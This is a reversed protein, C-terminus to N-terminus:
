IDLFESWGFAGCLVRTRGSNSKPLKKVRSPKFVVFLNKAPCTLGISLNLGLPGISSYRDPDSLMKRVLVNLLENGSTRRDVIRRDIQRVKKTDSVCNFNDTSM